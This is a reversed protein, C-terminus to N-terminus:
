RKLKWIVMVKMENIQDWLMCGHKYVVLKSDIIEILRVSKLEM